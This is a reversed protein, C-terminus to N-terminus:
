PTQFVETKKDTVVTIQTDEFKISLVRFGIRSWLVKLNGHIAEPGDDFTLTASTNDWTLQGTDPKVDISGGSFDVEIDTVQSAKIQVKAPKTTYDILISWGKFEELVGPTLNSAVPGIVAAFGGSIQKEENVEQILATNAM